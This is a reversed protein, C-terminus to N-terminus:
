IDGSTSGPTSLRELVTIMPVFFAYIAFFIVLGGQLFLLRRCLKSIVDGRDRAETINDKVIEDITDMYDHFQALGTQNYLRIAEDRKEAQVLEVTQQRTQHFAARQKVLRAYRERDESNELTAEYQKFLLDVEGTKRDIEALKEIRFKPDSSALVNAMEFFGDSMSIKILSSTSLEQLSDNVILSAQERLLLVTWLPSTAIFLLLTTALIGFTKNRITRM